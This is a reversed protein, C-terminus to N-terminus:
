LINYFGRISLDILNEVPCKLINIFLEVLKELVKEPASFGV